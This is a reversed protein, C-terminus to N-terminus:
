RPDSAAAILFTRLGDVSRPDAIAPNEHTPGQQIAAPSGFLLRYDDALIEEQKWVESSNLRPDGDLGRMALYTSWLSHEGRSMYCSIWLLGLQHAITRDPARAFDSSAWADLWLTTRGAPQGSAPDLETDTTIRTPPFADEVRVTLGDGMEADLGNESLMAFIAQPTWPGASILVTAGEFTGSRGAGLPLEMPRPVSSPSFTFASGLQTPADAAMPSVGSGGGAHAIAAAGLAFPASGVLRAPWTRRVSLIRRM